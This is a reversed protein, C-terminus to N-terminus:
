SPGWLPPPDSSGMTSTGPSELPGANMCLIVECYIINSFHKLDITKLIGPAYQTFMAAADRRATQSSMALWLYITPPHRFYRKRRM